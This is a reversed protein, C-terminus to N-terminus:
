QRTGMEQLLLAAQRLSDEGTMERRLLRSSVGIVLAAAEAKFRDAAARQEAEIQKRAAALLGEAGAKGEALIRETQGQATERAANIIAEAEIRANKLQEEYRDLVLKAQEKDKEAQEIADQIKQSRGEIFKSVPKFLIRRLIFFLIGINIFTFFFTVSFDLM